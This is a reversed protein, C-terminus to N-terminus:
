IITEISLKDSKNCIFFDHTCDSTFLKCRSKHLSQFKYNRICLTSNSSNLCDYIKFIIEKPGSKDIHQKWPHNWNYITRNTLNLHHMRLIKGTYYGGRTCSQQCCLTFKKTFLYTSRRIAEDERLEWSDDWGEISLCTHVVLLVSIM